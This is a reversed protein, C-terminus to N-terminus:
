VNDFIFQVILKGVETLNFLTSVMAALEESLKMATSEWQSGQMSFVSIM